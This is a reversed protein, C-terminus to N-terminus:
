SPRATFGGFAEAVREYVTRKFPVVLAPADALPMWRWDLFEPISDGGPSLKAIDIEDEDGTFRFAAWRQQQGRFPSLRHQPGDYPPFDYAWWEDTIMLLDASRVGTEEFLERRAARELEEGKDIGGQPMQWDFGPLVIEPGSGTARGMFVLGDPNFLAIGINPRYPRTDSM